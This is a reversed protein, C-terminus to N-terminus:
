ETSKLNFRLYKKEIELISIPKSFYYGQGIDCKNQKLYTYENVTEIGEAIVKLNLEKCLNIIASIIARAEKSSNINQTFARDIKLSDIPLRVIYNLSSYGIGFDDIAIRIGMSRIENLKEISEDVNKIVMRETIELQLLAPNIGYKTVIYILQQSFNKLEFTDATINVSVIIPERQEDQWSRLQKCATELVWFDINIITGGQEALEIFSDPYLLGRNPHNWRILAEFEVIKENELHVLPQYVLFFQEKRIGDAIDAQLDRMDLLSDHIQKDFIQVQNSGLYKAYNVANTVAKLPEESRTSDNWVFVGMSININITKESINYYEKLSSLIRQANLLLEDESLYFKNLIVFEDGKYRYLMTETNICRSIRTAVEKLVADGITYGYTENVLSFKDLAIMTISFDEVNEKHILIDIEKEFVYQNLLSTLPDFQTLTKIKDMMRNFSAGVRGIEDNTKPTFRITLDGLAGQSFLHDLEIIPKTFKSILVWAAIISFFISIMLGFLFMKSVGQLGKLAEEEFTGIYIKWSTEKVSAYGMLIKKNNFTYKGYGSLQNNSGKVYNSFSVYNKNDKAIEYLNYNKGSKIGLPQSILTGAKSIIYARGNKGYGRTLAFDSLFNIDLRAILAGRIVNDKYIPVGVMVVTEGTKRSVLAESFSIKGTLTEKVYGRDSLDIVTEDIYHAKGDLDAVAINLYDPIIQSSIVKRQREWDMTMIEDDKAIAKLPSIFQDIYSNLHAASEEAVREVTQNAEAVLIRRFQYYVGLGM